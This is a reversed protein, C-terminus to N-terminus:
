AAPKMKKKWDATCPELQGARGLEYELMSHDYVGRGQATTSVLGNTHTCYDDTEGFRPQGTGDFSTGVVGCLATEMEATTIQFNLHYKPVSKSGNLLAKNKNWGQSVRVSAEPFDFTAGRRKQVTPVLNGDVLLQKWSPTITTAEGNATIKYKTFFTGNVFKVGCNQTAKKGPLFMMATIQGDVSWAQTGTGGSVLRFWSGHRGRFDAFGGYALRLHPDGSGGGSDGSRTCFKDSIPGAQNLTCGNATCWECEPQALNHVFFM